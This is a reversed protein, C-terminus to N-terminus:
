NGQFTLNQNNKVNDFVCATVLGHGIKKTQQKFKHNAFHCSELQLQSHRNPLAHKPDNIKFTEFNESKAM